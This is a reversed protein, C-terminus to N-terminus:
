TGKSMTELNEQLIQFVDCCMLYVIRKKDKTSNGEMRRKVAKKPM